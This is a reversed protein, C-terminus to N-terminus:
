KDAKKEIKDFIKSLLSKIERIDERYDDRSMYTTPLTQRLQALDNKLEKVAAWLERAFWGLCMLGAGFLVNVFHQNEM